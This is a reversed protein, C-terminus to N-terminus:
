QVETATLPSEGSAGEEAAVTSSGYIETQLKQITAEFDPVLMEGKSSFMGDYPVRSQVVEYGLLAPAETLLKLMTGEDINHTVMPLIGNAMTNLEGLSLSKAKEMIKTLVERQRETRQYDANGVYRIRAYGVAQYGDLLLEGSGQILHPSPDIGELNCMDTIYDNAVRVEAESIDITVGGVLDVIDIMADFDVSAYNDITIRYNDELTQILLPGGGYAYAANLKHVGKGPINAYLDRMFSIMHIQKTKKNISMLIMSDSNGNWSKDRRDVGVLLINYVDKNNPLEIDKVEESSLRGLEDAEEQTIGISETEVSDAVVVDEDRVYNSKGYYHKVLAYASVLLVAILAIVVLVAIQWKKIRKPKKGGGRGTDQEKEVTNRGM